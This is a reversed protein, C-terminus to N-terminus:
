LSEFRKAKSIYDLNNMLSHTEFGNMKNFTTWGIRLYIVRKGKLFM